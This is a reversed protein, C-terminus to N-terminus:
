SSSPKVAVDLRGSRVHLDRQPFPIEIGAARLADHIALVLESRTALRREPRESWVRLEFDLSSEGFGTFLAAPAPDELVDPHGRAVEDLLALVREPPTGYAVGVPIDVRRTRDSLTWNVVQQSILDANPVIVEAGEYTRVTSSRVGIRRVEGLLEGQQVIDGVQIPREALLILGSVFNNVVNQLGFGIGVGFAGALLTIRSWDFGAAGAALLFGILLVTYQAVASIAHPVGRALSTRPFVEDELVLRLMRSVWLALWVTVAFAVLNGVTFDLSGVTVGLELFRRLAATSADAAGFFALTLWGWAGAALWGIGRSIRRQLLDGHRQVLHLRRAQPTRLLGLSLLQLVRAVAYLLLAQYAMRLLSEGLVRSLDVFGLLNALLAALLVLAAVRMGIGALPPLRVGTPLEALRRPQLLRLLLAAAVATELAFLTREVAVAPALLDRFRDLVYFAALAYLAPRLGEAVLPRLVRLIPVLILLSYLRLMAPPADSFAWWLALPLTALVALSIPTDFAWDAAGLSRGDARRARSRTRLAFTVPLVLLLLAGYGLLRRWDSAAYERLARLDRDVTDRLRSAVDGEAEGRLTDWLPAQEPHLLSREVASRAARLEGLVADVQQVLDAAQGQLTLLGTVRDRAAARVARAETLVARIRGLVDRPADEEEARALTAQWIGEIAAGRDRLAEVAAVRGGLAGVQQRLGDGLARWRLELEALERLSSGERLGESVESAEAALAKAREPLAAEIETVSPDAAIRDRLGALETGAREAEVAVEPLPIPQPPAPEAPTAPAPAPPAAAPPEQASAALPAHALLVVALCVARRRRAESM